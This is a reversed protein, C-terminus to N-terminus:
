QILARFILKASRYSFLWVIYLLSMYWMDVRVRSIIVLAPPSIVHTHISTSNNFLIQLMSTELKHLFSRICGMGVGYFFKLLYGYM